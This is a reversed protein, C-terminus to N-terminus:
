VYWNCCHMVCTPIKDVGPAHDWRNYQLHQIHDLQQQLYQPEFQFMQLKQLTEVKKWNLISCYEDNSNVYSTTFPIWWSKTAICPMYYVSLTTLLHMHQGEMPSLKWHFVYLLRLLLLTVFVLLSASLQVVDELIIAHVFWSLWLMMEFSWDKFITHPTPDGEIEINDREMCAITENHNFIIKSKKICQHM